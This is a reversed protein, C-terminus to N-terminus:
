WTVKKLRNRSSVSQINICMSPFLNRWCVWWRIGKKVNAEFKEPNAKLLAAADNNLPDGHNPQM